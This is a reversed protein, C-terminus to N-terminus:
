VSHACEAFVSTCGARGEAGGMRPAGVRPPAWPATQGPDQQVGVKFSVRVGVTRLLCVRTRAKQGRGNRESVPRSGHGSGQGDRSEGSDPTDQSPGWCDPLTEQNRNM